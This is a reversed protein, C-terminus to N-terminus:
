HIHTQNSEHNMEDNITPRVVGDTHTQVGQLIIEIM